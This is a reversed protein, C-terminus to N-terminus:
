RWVSPAGSATPLPSPRGQTPPASWGPGGPGLTCLAPSPLTSGPLMSVVHGWPQPARRRWSPPLELFSPSWVQDPGPTQDPGPPQWARPPPHPERVKTSNPQLAHLQYVTLCLKNLNIYVNVLLDSPLAPAFMRQPRAGPLCTPHPDRLRLGGLVVQAVGNGLGPVPAELSKRPTRPPKRCWAQSASICVLLMQPVCPPFLPGQGLFSCLCLVRVATRPKWPGKM